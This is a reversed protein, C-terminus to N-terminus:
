VLDRLSEGTSLRRIAKALLPAISVRRVGSGTDAKPAITDSVILESIGAEFLNNPARATFVGHTAAVRIEPLAGAARLAEAAKVVTDGTSIMDDLILCSCGDVDGILQGVEVDSGSLRRKTLVAVPCGLRQAGVTAREAAGLDPAVVVLKEEAIPRLDEMLIPIASLSEVPIRFFGEVQPSHLDVTLLQQVGSIELVDAVARGMIPVRRNKRRDARAYGFYPVVAIVRRAASRRCADALAVLEMLHDNVPPSTPQVVFVDRDRVSEQLEATVEGDPFRETRCRILPIGLQDAVAEALPRNAGGALLALREM